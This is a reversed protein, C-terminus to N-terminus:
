EFVFEQRDATNFYVTPVPVDLLRLYLCLQGRHHVMHNLSWTRYVMWKPRTVFVQAGNRMTWPRNVTAADFKAVADKLAAANADFRALLDARNKLEKPPRPANAADLEDQALAFQMWQPLYAVHLALNGLAMSKAHPKWGYKDEPLAELVSRTVRLERDLDSFLIEKLATTTLEM